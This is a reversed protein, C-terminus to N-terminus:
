RAGDQSPTKKTPGVRAATLSEDALIRDSESASVGVQIRVRSVIRQAVDIREAQCRPLWAVSQSTFGCRKQGGFKRPAKWGKNEREYRARLRRLAPECIWTKYTRGPQPRFGRMLNDRPQLVYSQAHSCSRRSDHYPLRNQDVGATDHEDVSGVFQPTSQM